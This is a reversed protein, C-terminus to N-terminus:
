LFTNVAGNIIWVSFFVLGMVFFFFGWRIPNETKEIISFNQGLEKLTREGKDQDKPIKNKDLGDVEIVKMNTKETQQFVELFDFIDPNGEGRWLFTVTLEKLGEGTRKVKYKTSPEVVMFIFSAIIGAVISLVLTFWFIGKNFNM